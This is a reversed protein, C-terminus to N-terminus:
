KGLVRKLEKVLAPVVEFADGVIGYTAVKFIPADKDKNIAVIVKSSSMGALHQIAGSIGIAIYLNPSVTKGTQGVQESYPRWGADVVARSAGVAAGLVDAVEDRMKFNEPGKLGRGGSVITAAETLEPRAAKVKNESVVKSKPTALNVSLNVIEGKGADQKVPISNPRLTVFVPNKAAECYVFAKGAYVPRRVIIRQGEVKVENCDQLVSTEYSCAIQPLLDKGNTTAAAFVAFPSSQKLAHLFVQAYIDPNYFGCADNAFQYIRDAGYKGLEEVNALPAKSIVVAAVDNGTAKAVERSATLAEFSPKKISGESVEIFTFVTGM